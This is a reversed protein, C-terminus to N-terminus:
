YQGIDSDRWDIHGADEVLESSKHQVRQGAEEPKSARDRQGDLKTTAVAAKVGPAVRHLGSNSETEDDPSHPWQTQSRCTKM